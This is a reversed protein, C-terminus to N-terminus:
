MGGKWTDSASDYYGVTLLSRIKKKDADMAAIVSAFQPEVTKDIATRIDVLSQLSKKDLEDTTYGKSDLKISNILSQREAETTANREDNARSAIEIAQKLQDERVAVKAELMAIKDLLLKTDGPSAKPPTVAPNTTHIANWRAECVDRATGDAICATMFEEKSQVELSM